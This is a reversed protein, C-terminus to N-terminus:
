SRSISKLTGDANWEIILTYLTDTGKFAKLTNLTGDQNWTFELKTISTSVSAIAQTADYIAKYAEDYRSWTPEPM